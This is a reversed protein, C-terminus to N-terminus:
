IADGFVIWSNAAVCLLVIVSFQAAMGSIGGAGSRTATGALTWLGTGTSTLILFNGPLGISTNITMVRSTTGTLVYLRNCNASTLTVAASTTTVPVGSDQWRMRKPAGGDNIYGEDTGVVANGELVPLVSVDFEISDTTAVIPATGVVNFTRSAAITGGGTLGNGATFTVAAHDIHENAVFGSLDDHVIESDKTTFINGSIDLGTTPLLTAIGGVSDDWFILRDENPDNINALDQVMGANQAAWAEVGAPTVARTTDTGTVVEATTALEIIGKQIESANNLVTDPVKSNVDLPAYGNSAGKNAVDEKSAIADEIEEFEADFETGKIFKAPDNEPLSDKPGFEVNQIYNSM